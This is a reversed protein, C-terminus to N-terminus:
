LERRRRGANAMKGIVFAIRLLAFHGPMAKTTRSPIGERFNGALILWLVPIEIAGAVISIM